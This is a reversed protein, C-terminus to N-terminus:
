VYMNTLRRRRGFLKGPDPDLIDIRSFGASDRLIRRFEPDLNSKIMKTIARYVM